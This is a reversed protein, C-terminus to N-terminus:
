TPLASFTGYRSTIDDNYEKTKQKLEKEAKLRKTDEDNSGLEWQDSTFAHIIQNDAGMKRLAAAKEDRSM